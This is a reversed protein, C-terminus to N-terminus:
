LIPGLLYINCEAAAYARFFLKVSHLAPLALLAFGEDRQKSTDVLNYRHPIGSSSTCFNTIPTNRLVSKRPRDM